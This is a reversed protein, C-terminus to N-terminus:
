VTGKYPSNINLKQYCEGTKDHLRWGLSASAASATVMISTCDGGPSGYVVAKYLDGDSTNIRRYGLEFLSLRFHATIKRNPNSIDTLVITKSTGDFCGFAHSRMDEAYTDLEKYIVFGPVHISAEGEKCYARCFNTSPTTNIFENKGPKTIDAIYESTIVIERASTHSTTLLSIFIVLFISLWSKTSTISMHHLHVRQM